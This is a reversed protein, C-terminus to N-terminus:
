PVYKRQFEFFKMWSFTNSFATQLIDVMKDRSWRKLVKKFTTFVIMPYEDYLDRLEPTMSLDQQPLWAPTYAWVVCKMDTIQLVM